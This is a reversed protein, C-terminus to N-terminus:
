KIKISLYENRLPFFLVVNYRTEHYYFDKGNEELHYVVVTSASSQDIEAFIQEKATKLTTLHFRSPYRLEEKFVEKKTWKPNWPLPPLQEQQNNSTTTSTNNEDDM